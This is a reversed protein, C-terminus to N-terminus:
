TASSCAKQPLFSLARFISMSYTKGGGDFAISNVSRWLYADNEERRKRPSTVGGQPTPPDYAADITNGM